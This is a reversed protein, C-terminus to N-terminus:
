AAQGAPDPDAATTRDKSAFKELESLYRGVAEALLRGFQV